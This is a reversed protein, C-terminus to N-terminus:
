DEHTKNNISIIETQIQQDFTIIEVSDGPVLSQKANISKGNHLAIAYGRKLVNIPDVLQINKDMQLLLVLENELRKTSTNRFYVSVDEIWGQSSIIKNAVERKLNVIENEMKQAYKSQQNKTVSVIRDVRRDLQNRELLVFQKSSTLVNNQFVRLVNRHSSFASSTENKFIRLEHVLTQNEHQFIKTVEHQISAIAEKVPISFNHFAQILFDALETPTIANRHAVMESVTINTSHGIGTLVPLPFTAIEKALNYNNYCSLGIEGGGGRIIAVADFHHQVKQIRKLQRIIAEIAADGNLQAQFLMFFYSYGWPNSNIVSYFDSLGKSSEVSIIAIRKPLLPFALQQNANLVGEKSLRQITEEREKHLEGLAFTPDIDVIELSMGYLPHYNIKVSFLLTMGDKLPEKVVKAFNDAIRDYNSKWIQGKMEAVLKGNEKQVLEPYCHGKHTYNLKHMEAKVWYVRNYREEITKQISRAVQQLTFIEHPAPM